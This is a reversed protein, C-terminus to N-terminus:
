PSDTRRKIRYRPSRNSTALAHSPLLSPAPAGVFSPPPSWQITKPPCLTPQGAPSLSGPITRHRPRPPSLNFVGPRGYILFSVTSIRACAFTEQYHDQSNIEYSHRMNSYLTASQAPILDMPDHDSPRPNIM